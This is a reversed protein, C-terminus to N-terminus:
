IFIYHVLENKNEKYLRWLLCHFPKSYAISSCLSPLKLFYSTVYFYRHMMLSCNFYHQRDAAEIAKNSMAYVYKFIDAVYMMKEDFVAIDTHFGYDMVRLFFTELCSDKYYHIQSNMYDTKYLPENM